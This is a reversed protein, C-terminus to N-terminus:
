QRWAWSTLVPDQGRQAGSSSWLLNMNVAFDETFLFLMKHFSAALVRERYHQQVFGQPFKMQFSTHVQVPPFILHSSIVAPYFIVLSRISHKVLPLSFNRDPQACFLPQVSSTVPLEPSVLAATLLHVSSHLSPLPLFLGLSGSCLSLTHGQFSPTGMRVTGCGAPLALAAGGAFACLSRQEFWQM